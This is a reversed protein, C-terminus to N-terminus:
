NTLSDNTFTEDLAMWLKKFLEALMCVYLYVCTFVYGGEMETASTALDTLLPLWTSARSIRAYYSGSFAQRNSLQMSIM